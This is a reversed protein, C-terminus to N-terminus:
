LKLDHPLNANCSVLVNIAKFVEFFRWFTVHNLVLFVLWMVSGKVLRVKNKPEKCAKFKRKLPICQKLKLTPKYIILITNYHTLNLNIQHQKQTLKKIERKDSVNKREPQKETRRVIVLVNHLKYLPWLKAHFLKLTNSSTNWSTFSNTRLTEYWYSDGDKFNISNKM